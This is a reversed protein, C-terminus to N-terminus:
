ARLLSRRAAMVSVIAVFEMFAIALFYKAGDIAHSQDPGCVPVPM